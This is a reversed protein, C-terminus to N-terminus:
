LKKEYEKIIDMRPSVGIGSRDSLKIIGEEFNWSGYKDLEWLFPNDNFDVELWGGTPAIACVQANAALSVVSAFNHPIYELFDVGLLEIEQKIKTTPIDDFVMFCYNIDNSM